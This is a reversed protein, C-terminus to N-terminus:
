CASIVKQQGLHDPSVNGISKLRKKPSKLKPRFSIHHTIKMRSFYCIRHFAFKLTSEHSKKPRFIAYIYLFNINSGVHSEIQGLYTVWFGHYVQFLAINTAQINMKLTLSSNTIKKIKQFNSSKVFIIHNSLTIKALLFTLLTCVLSEGHGLHTAPKMEFRIYANLATYPM